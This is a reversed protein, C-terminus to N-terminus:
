RGADEPDLNEMHFQFKGRSRDEFYHRLTERIVSFALQNWPIQAETFLDVEDSEEGAAFVPEQLRARAMVYVQDIFSMSFMAFPEIRELRARAEEYTERRIGEEVTEGNELYGAPLTWFGRRPEIARRCLLIRDEWEPISGVVMKPNQYHITGCTDCVYRQRDDGAPIRRTLPSGCQSCYNM